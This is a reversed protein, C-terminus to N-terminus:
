AVHSGWGICNTLKARGPFGPFSLNCLPSLGLLHPPLDHLWVSLPLRAMAAGAVDPHLRRGNAEDVEAGLRAAGERGGGTRNRGNGECQMFLAQM